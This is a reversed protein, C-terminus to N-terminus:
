SRETNAGNFQSINTSFGCTSQQVTSLICTDGLENATGRLTNNLSCAGHDILLTQRGRYTECTWVSDCSGLKLTPIYCQQGDEVEIDAQLDMEKVVLVHLTWCKEEMRWLGM